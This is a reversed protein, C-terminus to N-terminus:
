IYLKSDSELFGFSARGTKMPLLRGVATGSPVIRVKTGFMKGFADAM